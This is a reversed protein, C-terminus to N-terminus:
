RDRIPTHPFNKDHWEVWLDGLTKGSSRATTFLRKLWSPRSQSDDTWMVKKQEEERARRYETAKNEPLSNTLVTIKSRIQALLAPYSSADSELAHLKAINDKVWERSGKPYTVDSISAVKAVLDPPPTIEWSPPRMPTESLPPLSSLVAPLPDPAGKGPRDVIVVPTANQAKAVTGILFPNCLMLISACSFFIKSVSM